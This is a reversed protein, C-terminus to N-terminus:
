RSRYAAWFAQVIARAEYVGVFVFSEGSTLEVRWAKPYRPPRFIQWRVERINWVQNWPVLRQTPLNLLVRDRLELGAPTAIVVRVLLHLAVGSVGFLFFWFFVAVSLVARPLEADLLPWLLTALGLAHLIVLLRCFISFSASHLPRRRCSVGRHPQDVLHSRAFLSSHAVM